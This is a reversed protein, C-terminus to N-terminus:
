LFHILPAITVFLKILSHRKMPPITQPDDQISWTLKKESTYSWWNRGQAAQKAKKLERERWRRTPRISVFVDRHIQKHTNTHKHIVWLVLSIAWTRRKIAVNYWQSTKAEYYCVVGGVGGLGTEKEKEKERESEWLFMREDKWHTNFRSTHNRPSSEKMKSNMQLLTCAQLSITICLLLCLAIFVCQNENKREVYVTLQCPLDQRFAWIVYVYTM